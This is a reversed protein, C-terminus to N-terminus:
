EIDIGLYKFMDLFFYVNLNVLRVKREYGSFDFIVKSNSLKRIVNGCNIWVKVRRFM